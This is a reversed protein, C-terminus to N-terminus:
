ITEVRAEAMSKHRQHAKGVRQKEVAIPFARLAQVIDPDITKMPTVQKWHSHNRNTKFCGVGTKRLGFMIRHHSDTVAAGYSVVFRLYSM